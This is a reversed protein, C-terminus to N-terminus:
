RLKADPASFWALELFRPILKTLNQLVQFLGQLEPILCLQSKRDVFDKVRERMIKDDGLINIIKVVRLANNLDANLDVLVAFSSTNLSEDKCGRALFVEKVSETIIKSHCCVGYVDSTGFKKRYEVDLDEKVLRSPLEIRLGV